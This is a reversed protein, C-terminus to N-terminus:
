TPVIWHDNFISRVQPASTKLNINGTYGQFLQRDHGGQAQQRHNNKVVPQPCRCICIRSSCQCFLDGLTPTQTGRARTLASDLCNNLAIFIYNTHTILSFQVTHQRENHTVLPTWNKAPLSIGYLLCVKLFIQVVELVGHSHSVLVLLYDM